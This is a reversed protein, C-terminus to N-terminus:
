ASDGTLEALAAHLTRRALPIKFDNAGYGRADGLLIDAAKDFLASSPKEGVLIEDIAPDHWPKHALGGFALAASSIKGSDMDVIGAVSVLAFAYSSRDRVKRYIHRGTRPATLTVATIVDGAELINDQDPRDAPLRYFQRVHVSRPGDRGEIHVEADLAYMAM